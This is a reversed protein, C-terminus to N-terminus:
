GAHSTYKGVPTKRSRVHIVSPDRRQIRRRKSGNSNEDTTTNEESGGIEDIVDGEGKTDVM